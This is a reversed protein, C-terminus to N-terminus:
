PSTRACAQRSYSSYHDKRYARLRYCYVTDPELQDDEETRSGTGQVRSTVREEANFAHRWRYNMGGRDEVPMGRDVAVGHEVTSNDTWTLRLSTRGVESLTLESPAPLVGKRAPVAESGSPAASRQTRRDRPLPANRTPSTDAEPRLGSEPGVRNSSGGVTCVCHGDRCFTDDKKGDNGKCVGSQGMILCDHVGECICVTPSGPQDSDPNCSFNTGGMGQPSSISQAHASPGAAALLLGILLAPLRYMAFEKDMHSIGTSAAPCVPWRM